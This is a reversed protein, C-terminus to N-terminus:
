YLLLVWSVFICANHVYVQVELHFGKSGLEQQPWMCTSLSTALWYQMLTEAQQWLSENLMIVPFSLCFIRLLLSKVSTWTGKASFQSSLLSSRWLCVSGSRDCLVESYYSALQSFGTVITINYLLNVHWLCPRLPNTKSLIGWCFLCVKRLGWCSPQHMDWVSSGTM